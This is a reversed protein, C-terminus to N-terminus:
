DLAPGSEDLLANRPSVDGHCAGAARLATLGEQLQRAVEQAEVESFPRHSALEELTAGEIADMVLAPGHGPINEWALVRVCHPSEVARLVDFERRLWQLKTESKLIKLAVRQASHGRSDEREALCVVSTLGEGLWRVVRYSSAESGLRASLGTM